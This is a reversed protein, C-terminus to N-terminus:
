QCGDQIRQHKGHKNAVIAVLTHLRIVCYTANDTKNAGNRKQNAQKQQNLFTKFRLFRGLRPSITDEAHAFGGFVFPSVM